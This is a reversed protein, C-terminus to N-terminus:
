DVEPRRAGVCRHRDRVDLAPHAAGDGVPAGAAARGRRVGQAAARHLVRRGVDARRDARGVGPRAGGARLGLHADRGLRVHGLGPLGVRGQPDGRAPGSQRRRLRRQGQQLGDHGLRAARARHRDRVRAPRVRPARRSRHARRALPPQDRQLEALPAQHDLDRGRGPDRRDGRRRARRQAAPGRVPVRLQARQAPRARPQRRGRADRQPRPQAGRPRGDRGLVRALAPNFSAGLALGAPLATATDGPRYGPNTVGLSADSMLLPPVGLREVGPVYGASMPVGEPIREDRDRVVDNTGMVSVLLSFREEDTM